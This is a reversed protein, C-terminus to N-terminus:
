TRILNVSQFEYFTSFSIEKEDDDDGDEEM